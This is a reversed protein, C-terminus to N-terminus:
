RSEKLVIGEVRFFPVAFTMSEQPDAAAAKEAEVLQTIFFDKVNPQDTPFTLMVTLEDGLKLLPLVENLPQPQSGTSNNNQDINFVHITRTPKGLSVALELNNQTPHSITIVQQLAVLTHDTNVVEISLITGTLQLQEFDLVTKPASLLNPDPLNTIPSRIAQNNKWLLMGAILMALLAIFFLLTVAPRLKM